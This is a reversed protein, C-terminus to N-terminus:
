GAWFRDQKQCFSDLAPRKQVTGCNAKNEHFQDLVPRTNKKYFRDLVTRTKHQCGEPNMKKGNIILIVSVQLKRAVNEFSVTITGTTSSTSTFTTTDTTITAKSTTLRENMKM